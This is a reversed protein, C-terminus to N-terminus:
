KLPLHILQFSLSWARCKAIGDLAVSPDASRPPELPFASEWTALQKCRGATCNFDVCPRKTRAEFSCGPKTHQAAQSLTCRLTSVPGCGRVSGFAQQKSVRYNPGQRTHTHTNTCQNDKVTICCPTFPAAWRLSTCALSHYLGGGGHATLLPPRRVRCLPLSTPLCLTAWSLLNITLQHLLTFSCFHKIQSSCLFLFTNSNFIPYM